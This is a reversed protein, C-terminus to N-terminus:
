IYDGGCGLSYLLFWRLDFGIQMRGSADFVDLNRKLSVQGISEIMENIPTFVKFNTSKDCCRM